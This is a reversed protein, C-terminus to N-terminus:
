RVVVAIENSPGSAGAATAARVRVYYTGAGVGGAHFTTASNGTALTALERGGPAAGAEIVYSSAPSTATWTLTVDHGVVTAVLGVPASPVAGGGAVGVPIM